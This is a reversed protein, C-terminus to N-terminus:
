MASPLSPSIYDKINKTVIKNKQRQKDKGLGFSQTLSEKLSASQKVM